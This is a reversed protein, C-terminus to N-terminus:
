ASHRAPQYEEAVLPRVDLRSDPRQALAHPLRPVHAVPPKGPQQPVQSAGLLHAIEDRVSEHQALSGSDCFLALPTTIAAAPQLIWSMEDPWGSM